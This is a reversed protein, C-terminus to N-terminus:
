APLTVTVTTGIGETSDIEIYGHHDEIIKKVIVLGLGTGGPSKSFFPQFLRNMERSSMGRGTDAIEIQVAGNRLVTKKEPLWQVTRTSITLVGKGEMAALSNDIMNQLVIQKQHRDASLRPIDKGFRTEVTVDGSIRIRNAELVDRIVTNPDLSELQPKEIRCFKLFADTMERLRQVQGVIRRTFRRTEIKRSEGADCEMQLRQATLMVTALPTKIEHALRRAMTAWAVTRRSQALGTLDQLTVLKFDDRNRTAPCGYVTVLFDRPEDNLTITFERRRIAEAAALSENLWERLEAWCDGTLLVSCPKGVSTYPAYHFLLDCFRNVAHLMGSADAAFAPDCHGEVLGEILARGHKTRIKNFVVAAGLLCLFLTGMFVHFRNLGSIVGTLFANKQIGVIQYQDLSHMALLPRAGFEPYYFENGHQLSFGPWIGLVNLSSSLLVVWPEGQVAANVIIERNEDGTLNAVCLNKIATDKFRVQRIGQLDYDRIELLGDQWGLVMDIRGDGNGDIFDCANLVAPRSWKRSTLALTLPNIFQIYNDAKQETFTKFRFLIEPFGDDNLDARYVNVSTGQAGIKEISVTGGKKEAHILYSHHDDTGNIKMGGANGPATTGFLISEEGDLNFDGTVFENGRYGGPHELLVRRNKFDYILLGRPQYAYSTNISFVGDLVQDHNWDVLAKLTLGCFWPYQNFVNRVPKVAGVFRHTRQISRNSYKLVHVYVTDQVQESIFLEKIGDKDYDGVGANSIPGKFNFRCIVNDFPVDAIHLYSPAGIAINEQNDIHISESKGDGDLDHYHYGRGDRPAAYIVKFRYTLRASTLRKLDVADGNGPICSVIFLIM